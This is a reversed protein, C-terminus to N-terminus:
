CVTISIENNYCDCLKSELKKSRTYGTSVDAFCFCRGLRFALSGKVLFTNTIVFAYKAFSGVM